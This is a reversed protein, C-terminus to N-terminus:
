RSLRLVRPLNPLAPQVFYLFQQSAYSCYSSYRIYSSCSNCGSYGTLESPAERAFFRRRGVTRDGAYRLTVKHISDSENEGGKTKFIALGDTEFDKSSFILRFRLLLHCRRFWNWDLIGDNTGASRPIWAIRLTEMEYM